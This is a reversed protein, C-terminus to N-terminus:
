EYRSFSFCFARDLFFFFYHKYQLFFFFFFFFHPSFLKSLIFNWTM